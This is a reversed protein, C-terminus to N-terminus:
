QLEDAAKRWYGGGSKTHGLIAFSVEARHTATASTIRLRKKRRIEIKVEAADESLWKREESAQRIHLYGKKLVEIATAIHDGKLSYCRNNMKPGIEEM